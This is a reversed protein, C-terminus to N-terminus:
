IEPAGVLVINPSSGNVQKSHPPLSAGHIWCLLSLAFDGCSLHMYPITLHPCQRSLLDFLVGAPM